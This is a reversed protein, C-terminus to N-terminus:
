PTTGKKEPEDAEAAVLETLRAIVADIGREFAPIDASAVAALLTTGLAAHERQMTEMLEEAMPTLKVIVARRDSPHPTRHVYDNAELADVLASINRASVDLAGALAQQTSCGHLQLTWLVAVRAPTLPTGAFARAMDRQFLDSIALLKDLVSDGMVTVM